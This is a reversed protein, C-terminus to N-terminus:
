RIIKYYKYENRDKLWKLVGETLLDLSAGGEVNIANLFRGVDEPVDKDIRKYIEKLNEGLRRAEQFSAKGTPLDSKKSDLERFIQRYQQLLIKNQSTKAISQDLSNPTEALLCGQVFKTWTSIIIKRYFTNLKKLNDGLITWYNARSLTQSTPDKKFNKEIIKLNELIEPINEQQRLYNEQGNFLTTMDVCYSSIEKYECLTTLKKQLEKTEVHGTKFTSLKKIDNRLQECKTTLEM